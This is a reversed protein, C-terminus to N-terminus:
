SSSQVECNLNQVAVAMNREDPHMPYPLGWGINVFRTYILILFLVILIPLKFNLIQFKFISQFNQKRNIKHFM